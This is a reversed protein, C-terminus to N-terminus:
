QGLTGKKVGEKELRADKSTGHQKNFAAAFEEAKGCYPAIASASGPHRPLWSTVDYVIGKYAIWCDAQTSHAALQTRTVVGTGGVAGGTTGGTAPGGNDDDGENEVENEPSDDFKGVSEAGVGFPNQEEEKPPEPAPAQQTAFLFAGGAVILIVLTVIYKVM